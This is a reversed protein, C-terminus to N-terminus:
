TEDMIILSKQIDFTLSNVAQRGRGRGEVRDVKEGERETEREGERHQFIMENTTTVTLFIVINSLTNIHVNDDWTTEGERRKNEREGRKSKGCTKWLKLMRVIECIYALMQNHSKGATLWLRLIGPM